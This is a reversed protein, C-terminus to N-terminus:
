RATQRPALVDTSCLVFDSSVYWLLCRGDTRNALSSISEYLLLIFLLLALARNSIWAVRLALSDVIVVYKVM